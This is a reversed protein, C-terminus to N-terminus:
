PNGRRVETPGPPRSGPSSSRRRRRPRPSRPRLSPLLSSRRVECVWAGLGCWACVHLGAVIASKCRRARGYSSVSIPVRLRCGRNPRAPSRGRARPSQPSMQPRRAFWGCGAARSGTRDHRTPLIVVFWPAAHRQISRLPALAVLSRAGFMRAARPSRVRRAGEDKAGIGTM